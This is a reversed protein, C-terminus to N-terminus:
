HKSKNELFKSSETYNQDPSNVKYHTFIPLDRKSLLFLAEDYCRANIGLSKILFFQNQKTEIYLRIHYHKM